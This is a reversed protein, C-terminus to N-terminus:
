HPINAGTEFPSQSPEILESLFLSLATGSKAPRASSLQQQLFGNLAGLRSGEPHWSQAPHWPSLSTSCGDVDELLERDLARLTHQIPVVRMMTRFSIVLVLM